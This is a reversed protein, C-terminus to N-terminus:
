FVSFHSKVGGLIGKNEYLFNLEENTPLRWGNGSDQCIKYAEDFSLCRLDNAM